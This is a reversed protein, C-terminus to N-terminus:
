GPNQLSHDRGGEGFLSLALSLTHCLSLSLPPFFARAAVDVRLHRLGRAAVRARGGARGLSVCVCVFVYYM